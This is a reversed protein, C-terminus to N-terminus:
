CIAVETVIRFREWTGVILPIEDFLLPGQFTYDGSNNELLMDSMLIKINWIMPMCICSM